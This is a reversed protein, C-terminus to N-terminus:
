QDQRWVTGEQERSIVDAIHSIEVIGPELQPMANGSFRGGLGIPDSELWNPCGAVELGACGLV